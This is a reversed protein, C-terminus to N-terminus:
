LREAVRLTGDALRPDVRQQRGAADKVVACQETSPRSCPLLCTLLNRRREGLPLCVDEEGRM